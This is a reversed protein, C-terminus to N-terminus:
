LKIPITRVAATITLILFIITDIIVSTNVLIGIICYVSYIATAKFFIRLHIIAFKKRRESTASKAAEYSTGNIWYINETKYIIYFLILLVILTLLLFIKAIVSTSFESFYKEAIISASIMLVLVGIIWMILLKYSKARYKKEM